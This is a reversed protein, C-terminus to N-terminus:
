KGISQKKASVGHNGGNDGPRCDHTQGCSGAEREAHFREKSEVSDEMLRKTINEWSVSGPTGQDKPAKEM